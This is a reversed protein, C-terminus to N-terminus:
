DETQHQDCGCIVEECNMGDTLFNISQLVDSRDKDDIKGLLILIFAAYAV